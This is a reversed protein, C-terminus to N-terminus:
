FIEGSTITFEIDHDPNDLTLGTQSNQWQGGEENLTWSDNLTLTKSGSDFSMGNNSMFVNSTLDINDVGGMMEEISETLESSVLESKPTDDFGVEFTNAQYDSSNTDEYLNNDGEQEFSFTQPGHSNDGTKIWINQDESEYNTYGNVVDGQTWTNEDFTLTGDDGKVIGLDFLIDSMNDGTVSGEEVFLEVGTNTQIQSEIDASSGIAIDFGEGGVLTDAGDFILVDNGSGGHLMDAGEGGILLDNGSGGILSDDGNGGELVDNGAGGFLIDNSDGGTLTDNGSFGILVDDHEGGNLIVNEPNYINSDDAIDIAQQVSKEITNGVDNLLDIDNDEAVELLPTFNTQSITSDEPLNLTEEIADFVLSEVASAFERAIVSTIEEFAKQLDESSVSDYVNDTLQSLLKENYNGFGIAFLEGLEGMAQQLKKAAEQTQALEEESAHDGNTDVLSLSGVGIWSNGVKIQLDPLRIIEGNGAESQVLRFTMGSAEDIWTYGDAGNAIDEQTNLQQGDTDVTGSFNTTEVEITPSTDGKKFFVTNEEGAEVVPKGIFSGSSNTGPTVTVIGNYWTDGSGSTGNDSVCTIYEGDANQYISYGDNAYGPNNYDFITTEVVTYRIGDVTVSTIADQDYNVVDNVAYTPSGDTMFITFNKTSTGDVDGLGNFWATATDLAMEMNTGGLGKSEWTVSSLADHISEESSLDNSNLSLEVQAGENYDILYLNVNVGGESLTDLDMGLDSLAKEIADMATASMSGSSDVIVALNLTVPETDQATDLILDGTVADINLTFDASSTDGDGDEVTYKFEFSQDTVISNNSNPTFTYSGNSNFEMTGADSTFKMPNSPDTTWGEPAKVEIVAGGEAWGDAGSEDNTLLNGSKPTDGESTNLTDDKAVAVDDVIQAQIANEASSTDGNTDTVSIDFSDTVQDSNYAKDTGYDKNHEMSTETQTYEYNVTYTGDPSQTISVNDIHGLDGKVVGSENSPTLSGDNNVTFTVASEGQGITFSKVGDESTIVFSGESTATANKPTLSSADGGVAADYTTVTSSTADADAFSITPAEATFTHKVSDGDGDKFILEKDNADAKYTVTWNTNDTSTMTVDGLIITHTETSEDFSYETTVGNIPNFPEWKGDNWQMGVALTGVSSEPSIIKAGEMDAGFNIEIEASAIGDTVTATTVGTEGDLEDGILVPGDDRVTIDVEVDFKNGDADQLTVFVKGGDSSENHDNTDTHTVNDKLTITLDGNEYKVNYLTSDYGDVGIITYGDPANWIATESDTNAETGSDMGSEDLTVHGVSGEFELNEFNDTESTDNDTDKISVTAGEPAQFDVSSEGKPITLEQEVGDVVVTITLDTKTNTSLDLTYTTKGDETKGSDLSLTTTDADDTITVKNATNDYDVDEYNGGKHGTITPAINSDGDVYANDARVDVEFTASTQGEKITVNQKEGNVTIEVTLDTQPANDVSVTYEVSTANEDVNDPATLTITTTDISDELTETASSGEFSEYQSGDNNTVGTVEVKIEDSDKFVDSFDVGNDEFDYTFTGQGTAGDIDVEVEFPEKGPLTVTVTAKGDTYEDAENDLQVTFELQTADEDMPTITVSSTTPNLLEIDNGVPAQGDNNDQSGDRDEFDVSRTGQPIDLGGLYDIGDILNAGAGADYFAGDAVPTVTAPGAAPMLDTADLAAFFTEGDIEIGEINFTPMNDSNFTNYFNNLSITSGDVFELSLDDGIRNLSVDSTPFDFIITDNAQPIQVLQTGAAPKALTIAM